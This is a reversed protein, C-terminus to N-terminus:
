QSKFYNKVKEKLQEALIRNKNVIMPIGVKKEFIETFIKDINLDEIKKIKKFEKSVKKIIKNETLKKLTKHIAQCSVQMGYKTKTREHIKKASLPSEFALLSVVADKSSAKKGNIVPLIINVTM